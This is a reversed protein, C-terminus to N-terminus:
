VNTTTAPHVEGGSSTGNTAAADGTRVKDDFVANNSALMPGGCDRISLGLRAPDIKRHSWLIFAISLPILLCDLVGYFAFESDPAIVNGGESIGWCILYLMWLFWIWAASVFHARRIDQGLATAYCRPYWVFYYGLGLWCAIWFGYYGWKYCGCYRAWWIQRNVGAVLHNDPRQWEVDIPAWGLNAAMSFHQLMAVLAAAALIYHLARATRPKLFSHSIIALVTAGMISMVAWYWNSGHSTIHIDVTRDNVVFPNVRTAQNGSPM